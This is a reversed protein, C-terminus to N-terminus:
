RNWHIGICVWRYLSLLFACCHSFLAERCQQLTRHFTRVVGKVPSKLYRTKILVPLPQFCISCYLWSHWRESICELTCDDYDLVASAPTVSIPIMAPPPSPSGQPRCLLSFRTNLSFCPSLRHIRVPGQFGSGKACKVHCRLTLNFLSCWSNFILFLSFHWSLLGCVCVCECVCM